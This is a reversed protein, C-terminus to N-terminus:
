ENNVELPLYIRFKAGQGESDALNIEGNHANVISKCLALGLGLSRSTDGHEVTYFYEFIHVKDSDSIGLGNDSIEILANNNVRSTTITITSEDFTYKFANDIINVIVQMILKADMKCMLLEDNNNVVIKHKKQYHKVHRLAESVVDEVLETTMKLHLTGDELKTVSLLNEVLNILWISDDYIDTYLEKKKEVSLKEESSLLIGANGSIATLPTRLDHSISRLLDSRLQENKALIETKKQEEIAADKELAFASEGIISLAISMEITDLQKDIVHLAVVGYVNNKVRIALYLYESNSLTSTTAGAHKNNRFTWMAIAKENESNYNIPKNNEDICYLTPEQLLGDKSLYVVIDMNLLKKLQAAIVKLIGSANSEQQLLQNTELLLKTRYASKTMKIANQKIKIALSSTIFAVIFMILFTVPYGKNYADFSFRPEAFFFNFVLVSLISSLISYRKESTLISTVLVGLIYIMVINSESFHWEYFMMGIITTFTLMILTKALDLTSIVASSKYGRAIYSARHEKDPIVYLDLNPALQTLKEILSPKSFFFRRQSQSRGLVIKSVGIMRAYEAIQVAIDEGYAIEVIAGLQQALRMNKRLLDKDEESMYMFDPTEVFIATLTGRFASAMRSATRIIKANSPSSSLCVLLQEDTFYTNRSLLRENEVRKNVRDACRRLAIEKLAVLNEVSFFNTLANQARDNRYIKGENLREILEQPEIDVLEVQNANDFVSDPIRERVLVGTISAVIDNLSEIHQVNVTTYVNIGAKLLEEIDKYRKDHRSGLANTHALEDVLLVQPNRALAGDLDFENLTINNYTVEKLGLVELGDLLAATEPRAHPEVYGVVVDVGRKKLDHAASLMSYTKGVGAAYGFFIKLKGQTAEEELKFYKEPNRGYSM